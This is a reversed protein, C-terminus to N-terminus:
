SYDCISQITQVIQLMFVFAIACLCYVFENALFFIRMKNFYISGKGNLTYFVM